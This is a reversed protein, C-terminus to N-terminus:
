RQHCSSTEIDENEQAPDVDAQGSVHIEIPYRVPNTLLQRVDLYAGPVTASLRTQLQEVFSPMDDKDYIEFILQAYNSQESESPESFWFRLGGGGVFTTVSKLM